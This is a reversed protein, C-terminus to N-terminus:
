PAQGEGHGQLPPYFHGAERGLVAAVATAEKVVPTAAEAAAMM